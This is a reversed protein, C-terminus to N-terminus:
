PAVDVVADDSQSDHWRARMVHHGPPLTLRARTVFAGRVPLVRAEPHCPDALPMPEEKGDILLRDEGCSKVTVAEPSRNVHAVEVAIPEGARAHATASLELDIRVDTPVEIPPSQLDGFRVSVVHHRGDLGDSLIAYEGHAPVERSYLHPTGCSKGTGVFPRVKGDVILKFLPGACSDGVVAQVAEDGDNHLQAQVRLGVLAATLRLDLLGVLILFVTPMPAFSHGPDFRVM